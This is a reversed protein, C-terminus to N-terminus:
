VRRLGLAHLALRREDSRLWVLAYLSWYFLPALVLTAVVAPKSTLGLGYRAGVLLTALAAGTLYAPIWAQRAAEGWRVGATRLAFPLWFALAVTLGTMSGIIPGYIGLASTLPIALSVNM